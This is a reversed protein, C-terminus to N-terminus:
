LVEPLDDTNKYRLNGTKGERHLNWAEICRGLVTKAVVKEATPTGSGRGGSPALALLWKQLKRDPLDPKAGSGDRVARWFAKAAERDKQYTAFIAAVVPVRWLCATDENKQDSGLCNKLFIVFNKHDHLVSAREVATAGSKGGGMNTVNGAYNLAGVALNVLKQNVNKVKDITQSVANVIDSGSRVQEKSDFTGWLAAVDKKTDCEYDELHVYVGELLAKDTAAADALMTSSHQADVRYTVGDEKCLARAFTTPRFEKNNLLARLRAIKKEKLPREIDTKEMVSFEDALKKTVPVTQAKVLRWGVPPRKPAEPEPAPEGAATEEFEKKLGENEKSMKKKPKGNTPEPADMKKPVPTEEKLDADADAIVTVEKGAKRATLAKEFTALLDRDGELDKRGTEELPLLNALRGNLRTDDWGLASAYKLGVFMKKAVSRRIKV